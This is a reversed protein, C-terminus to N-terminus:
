TELNKECFIEVGIKEMKEKMKESQALENNRM